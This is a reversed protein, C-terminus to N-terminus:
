DIVHHQQMADSSAVGTDSYVSINDQPSSAITAIVNKIEIITTSLHSFTARQVGSSIPVPKQPTQKSAKVSQPLHILRHLLACGSRWSRRGDKVLEPFVIECATGRTDEEFPVPVALFALCSGYQQRREMELYNFAKQSGHLVRIM